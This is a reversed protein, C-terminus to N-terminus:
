LLLKIKYAPSETILDQRDLEEDSYITQIFQELHILLVQIDVM